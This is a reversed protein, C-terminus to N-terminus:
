VSHKEKESVDDEKVDHNLYTEGQSLMKARYANSGIVSSERYLLDIQELALGKTEPIFFYAFIICSLCTAGRFDPSILQYTEVM